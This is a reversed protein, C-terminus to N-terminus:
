SPSRTALYRPIGEEIPTFEATYGVSRLLGLEAQTRPQYVRQLSTPFDVYTVEGSGHHAIVQNAVENFTRAEGTGCNYVGSLEPHDLFWLAVSVVDDVHVFDRCQEGAGLGHSPGFLRACGDVRVQDALRTVMSAMAGKHDEGPGYVNFYRLGVVQVSLDEITSRVHSDFSAKSRGYVNLPRVHDGTEAFCPGRGYVAASSAYVLRAGVRDCFALLERSYEYNNRMMYRGDAETTDTCAGQHLVVEVDEIRDLGDRCMELFDVKDIYDSVRTGVLNAFRRSHSLDDVVVVDDRGRANLARVLNSGIFGAGGTVVIM